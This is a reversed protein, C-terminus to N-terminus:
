PNSGLEAASNQEGTIQEVGNITFRPAQDMLSGTVSSKLIELSNERPSRVSLHALKRPHNYPGSILFKGSLYSTHNM